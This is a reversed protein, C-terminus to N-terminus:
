TQRYTYGGAGIHDAGDEYLIHQWSIAVYDSDYGVAIFLVQTGVKHFFFPFFVSVNRWLQVEQVKRGYLPDAYTIVAQLLPSNMSFLKMMIMLVCSLM